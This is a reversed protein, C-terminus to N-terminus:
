LNFKLIALIYVSVFYSEPFSILFSSEECNRTKVLVRIEDTKTKRLHVMGTSRSKEAVFLELQMTHRMLDTIRKNSEDLRRSIDDLMEQLSIDACFGGRFSLLIAVVLPVITMKM